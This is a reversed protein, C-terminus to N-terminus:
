SERYGLSSSVSLLPLSHTHALLKNTRHLEGTKKKLTKVKCTKEIVPCVVSTHACRAESLTVEYVSHAESQLVM